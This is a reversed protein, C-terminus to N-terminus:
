TSPQAPEPAVLVIRGQALKVAVQLKQVAEPLTTVEPHSSARGHFLLRFQRVNTGDLEFIFGVSTSPEGGRRRWDSLWGDVHLRRQGRVPALETVWLQAGLSRLPDLAPTDEDLM